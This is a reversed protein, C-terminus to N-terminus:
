GQRWDNLEQKIEEWYMNVSDTTLIGVLALPHDGADEHIEYQYTEMLEQPDQRCFYTGDTFAVIPDYRDDYVKSVTKGEIDRPCWLHYLKGEIKM